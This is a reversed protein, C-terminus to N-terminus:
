PWSQTESQKKQEICKLAYENGNSNLSVASVIGGGGKGIFHKHSFMTKENTISRFSQVFDKADYVAYKSRIWDKIANFGLDSDKDYFVIYKINLNKYEKRNNDAKIVVKFKFYDDIQDLNIPKLGACGNFYQVEFNKRIAAFSEYKLLCAYKSRFAKYRDKIRKPDTLM